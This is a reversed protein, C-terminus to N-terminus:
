TYNKELGLTVPLLISKRNHIVFNSTDRSERGVARTKNLEVLEPQIKELLKEVNALLTTNICTENIRYPTDHYTTEKELDQVDSKYNSLQIPNPYINQPQHAPTPYYPIPHNLPFQQTPFMKPIAQPRIFSYRQMPQQTESVLNDSSKEQLPDSFQHGSNLPTAGNHESRIFVQSEAVNLDEADLVKVESSRTRLM